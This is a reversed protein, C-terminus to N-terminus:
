PLWIANRRYTDFGGVWGAQKTYPVGDVMKLLVKGDHIDTHHASCVLAANTTDTLGGDAYPIVHHVHCWAGIVRCGPIVCGGDRIMLAERQAPTFSRAKRGFGLIQDGDVSVEITEADCTLHDLKKPPINGSFLGESRLKRPQQASSNENEEDKAPPANNLTYNRKSPPRTLDPRHDWPYRPNTDQDPPPDPPKMTDKDRIIFLKSVTGNMKPLVADKGTMRFLAMLATIFNDLAKEEPTRPDVTHVDRATTENGHEDIAIVEDPDYGDATTDIEAFSDSGRIESLLQTSPDMATHETGDITSAKTADDSTESDMAKATPKPHGASPEAQTTNDPKDTPEASEDPTDPGNTSDASQGGPGPETASDDTTFVDPHKDSTKHNKTHSMGPRIVTELVERDLGYTGLSITLFGNDDVTYRFFEKRINAVESPTPGDPNIRHAIEDLWKMCEASFEEVTLEAAAEAITPEFAELVTWLDDLNAAGGCNKLYRQLAKVLTLSRDLNTQGIENGFYAAAIVPLKTERHTLKKGNYQATIYEARDLHTGVTRTPENHTEALYKNVKTWGRVGEPIGLKKEQDGVFAEQTFSALQTRIQTTKDALKKAASNMSPLTDRINEPPTPPASEPKIANLDTQQSLFGAWDKGTEQGYEALNEYADPQAFSETVQDLLIFALELKDGCSANELFEQIEQEPDPFVPSDDQESFHETM